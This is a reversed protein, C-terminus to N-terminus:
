RMTIATLRGSKEAILLLGSKAVALYGSAPYSWTAVRTALDVTYTAVTTSVLLMNRTVIMPANVTGQPPAWSWLLVGDSERRAEIGGIRRIYVVGNGVSPQGSYGGALEWAIRRRALDFALVRGGQAVIVDNSDGVVPASDMSLYERDFGPDPIEHVVKGTAADAVTLKPDLYGTHVYLLGGHVAPTFLDNQNVPTSWVQRGDTTSYAYVGSAYGGGMILLDGSVVPTLWRYHQNNFPTRFRVSGDTANFGWAYSDRTTGTGVYVSGNAYTPPDVVGAMGRTWRLAGSKADLSALLAKGTNTSALVYGDGAVVPNLPSDPALTTSWSAAFSGPDVTAPVYGTHRANGQYNLWDETVSSWDAKPRALVVVPLTTSKGECTVTISATGPAIASVIGATDVNATQPDSTTWTVQRGPLPRRLSDFPTATLRAQNGTYLTLSSQSVGVSVVPIPLVTVVVAAQQSDASARITVRGPQRAAVQVGGGNRGLRTVVTDSTTWTVPFGLLVRGDRDLLTASLRFVSEVMVGGAPVGTIEIRAVRPVSASPSSPDGGTCAAILMTIALVCSDVARQRLVRLGFGDPSDNRRSLSM